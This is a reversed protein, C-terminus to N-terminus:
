RRLIRLPQAAAREAAPQGAPAEAQTTTALALAFWGEACTAQVARADALRPHAAITDPLIKVPREKAFVKGFITRLAIEMRGQHGPGGVQVPGERELVVQAGSGAPRYAVRAVIDYWNRRGSELADLAVRLHVLGDRCEVQLPADAAFTISVDDPLDDPIRPPIGLQKCILTILAELSMTRGALGLRDTANNVTSDHVQLSLLAEDPARPRPTHAALQGDGALRLRVTAQTPTTELAVPTPELGLGVLPSWIRERVREAMEAFRPEAQSDVERCARSIIRGNVERTAEARSEDHQSRAITRVLPGMIPVSDFSTEINALQSENSATGVAANFALGSASLTIPKRVVFTAAGRSHIAVPGAETVTRSAVEGSILLELRISSTDPVFRVETSQEVTRTGRVKRGLVFDQLPGTTVTSEPLLRSVFEQHVAIRVNPALYHDRVARAVGQAAAAPAASVAALSDRVAIANAGRPALEFAELAALLRVTDRAASTGALLEGVDSGTPPGASAGGEAAVAAASRWVAVRRAVALATRRTDTALVPDATRDAAAMGHAVADSLALLLATAEADHPGATALVADFQGRAARCWAAVDGANVRAAAADLRDLQEVLKEPRPWERTTTARDDLQADAESATADDHENRLGRRENRLRELLRGNGLPGERTPPQGNLRDVIRERLRGGDAAPSQRDPADAWNVSDPDTWEAGPLPAAAAPQSAVARQRAAVAQPTPPQQDAPQRQHMRAVLAKLPESAPPPAADGEVKVYGPDAAAPEAPLDPLVPPPPAAVAAGIVPTPPAPPRPVPVAQAVLFAAQPAAADELALREPPTTALAKALQALDGVAPKEAVPQNASQAPAAAAPPSPASTGAENLAPGELGFFPRDVGDGQMAASVAAACLLGAVFSGALVRLARADNMGTRAAM